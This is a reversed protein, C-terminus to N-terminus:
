ATRFHVSYQQIESHVSRTEYNNNDFSLPLTCGFCDRAPGLGITGRICRKAASSAPILRPCPSCSLCVRLLGNQGPVRKGADRYTNRARVARAWDRVYDEVTGTCASSPGGGGREAPGHPGPITPQCRAARPRRIPRRRRISRLRRQSARRGSLRVSDLM